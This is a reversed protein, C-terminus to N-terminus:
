IRRLFVTILRRIGFGSIPEPYHILKGSMVVMSGTTVKFINHRQEPDERYDPIWLLNGGQITPDKQLYFLVTVMRDRFVTHDDSHWSFGSEVEVGDGDAVALHMEIHHIHGDVHFGANKAVMVSTEVISSDVTNTINFTKWGRNMKILHHHTNWIQEAIPISQEIEESSPIHLITDM